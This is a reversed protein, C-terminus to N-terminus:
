TSFSLVMAFISFIKKQGPMFLHIFPSLFIHTKNKPRLSYNSLKKKRNDEIAEATENENTVPDGGDIDGCETAGSPQQYASETKSIIELSLKRNARKKFLFKKNWM